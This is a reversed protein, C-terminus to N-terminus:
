KEKLYNYETGYFFSIGSDMYKEIYNRLEDSNDFQEKIYTTIETLRFESRSIFDIKYIKYTVPEMFGEIKERPTKISYDKLNLFYYDNIKSIHGSYTSANSEKVEYVPQKSGGGEGTEEESTTDVISTILYEFESLGKIEYKTSTDIKEAWIGFYKSEVKINPKDVPVKSAYPCGSFIILAAFLFLLLLNKM